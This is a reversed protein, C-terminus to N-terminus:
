LKFQHLVSHIAGEPETLSKYLSITSVPLTFPAQSMEFAPVDRKMIKGVTLHGRFPRSENEFGLANAADNILRAADTLAENPQVELAIVHARRPNPFPKADNLDISFPKIQSLVSQVADILPQIQETQVTQLFKLTIHLNEWPLWRITENPDQRQLDRITALLQQKCSEDIDVAFFCRLVHPDIGEM